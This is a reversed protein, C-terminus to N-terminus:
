PSTSRGAIFCRGETASSQGWEGCSLLFRWNLNGSHGYESESASLAEPNYVPMSLDNILFLTTETPVLNGKLLQM